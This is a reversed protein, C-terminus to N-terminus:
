GVERSKDAAGAARELAGALERAESPTLVRYISVQAGASVHIHFHVDLDGVDSDVTFHARDDGTDFGAEYREADDDTNAFLHHLNEATV